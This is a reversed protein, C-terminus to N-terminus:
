KWTGGNMLDLRELSYSKLEAIQEETLKKLLSPPPTSFDNVVNEIDIIKFGDKLLNLMVKRLAVFDDIGNSFDDEVILSEPVPTTITMGMGNPLAVHVTAKNNFFVSM